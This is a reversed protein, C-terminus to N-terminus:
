YTFPWGKWYNRVKIWIGYLGLPEVVLFVVILVGFLVVNLQFISLGPGYADLSVIGIYDNPGTRIFLDGLWAFGGEDTAQTALWNTTEEVIRPSLVVFFTGLFVGVITGAGGILVIAVFEISLFLDWSEPISRGIVSSLIAGAVGAYFSSIAFAQTKGKAEAVGMVEAAIDRDRIAAWSRGVRTRMLNKAMLAFGVVFVLVFFYTKSLGSMEEIHVWPLWNIPTLWWWLPGDSTFSVVPDMERWLAFELKPWPRGTTPGGAVKGLNRWLFLGIFVLGLTVFALYLGRVRVATPAILIGVFAAGVGAAPLWVWIPLGLGWVTRGAEGGLVVATYAGVAMFFSHGLSVQGAVGILLNLGLAAIAYILAKNLLIMWGADGLFGFFPLANFPILIAVVGLLAISVRKTTTPFLGVEAQYETYLNPRGRM